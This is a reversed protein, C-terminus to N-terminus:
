CKHYTLFLALFIKAQNDDEIVLMAYYPFDKKEETFDSFSKGIMKMAKEQLSYATKEQKKKWFEIKRSLVKSMNDLSAAICKSSSMKSQKTPIPSM